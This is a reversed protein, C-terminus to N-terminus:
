KLEKAVMQAYLARAEESLEVEVAPECPRGELRQKIERIRMAQGISPANIAIAQYTKIMTLQSIM